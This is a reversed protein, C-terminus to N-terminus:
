PATSLEVATAVNRWALVSRGSARDIAVAPDVVFAGPASVLAPAAFPAAAGPREAALLGVVSETPTRNPGDAGRRGSVFAITARGPAAVALDGLIVDAGPVALTQPAIACTRGLPGARVVFRGDQYGTWALTSNGAADQRLVVGPGDVYRGSGTVPVSGLDRPRGSFHGIASSCAVRAAFPSIADGESVRQWGWAVIVRHGGGPAISLHSQVGAGVRQAPSLRGSPTLRREYIVHEREYAFALEGGPLTTLDADRLSTATGPRTIARPKSWRGGRRRVVVLDVRECFRGLCRRVIVGGQRAAVVFGRAVGLAGLGAFRSGAVGSASVLHNNTGITGIAATRGDGLPVLADAALGDGLAAPAGLVGAPSVVATFGIPAVITPNGAPDSQLGLGSNAAVAVGGSPLALLQPNSLAAGGFPQPASWPVAASAPAAACLATVLSTALTLRKM